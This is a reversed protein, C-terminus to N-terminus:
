EGTQSAAAVTGICIDLGKACVKVDIGLSSPRIIHIQDNRGDARNSSVRIDARGPLEIAFHLRLDASRTAGRSRYAGRDSREGTPAAFPLDWDRVIGNVTVPVVEFGLNTGSTEPATFLRTLLPVPAEPFAAEAADPMRPPRKLLFFYHYSKRGTAKPM